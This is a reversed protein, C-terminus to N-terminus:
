FLAMDLRLGLDIVVPSPELVTRGEVLYRQYQLFYAVGARVGVHVLDGLPLAVFVAADASADVQTTHVVIAPRAVAGDLTAFHLSAGFAPELVLPGARLRARLSPAITLDGLRGSLESTDVSAGTGVGVSAGAGFRGDLSRPWLSAGLAVRPEVSPGGGAFARLSGDAEVRLTAPPRPRAGIQERPPAVTSSRLVTKLTLAVAAASASETLAPAGLPRTILQQTHADYAWLTAGGDDDRTIWALGDVDHLTALARADTAADTVGRRPAAWDTALVVLDWSALAVDVARKLEDGEGM